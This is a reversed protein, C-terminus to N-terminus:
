ATDTHPSLDSLARLGDSPTAALHISTLGFEGLFDEFFKMAKPSDSIILGREM